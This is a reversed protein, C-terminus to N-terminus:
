RIAPMIIPRSDSTLQSRPYSHRTRCQPKRIRDGELSPLAHARPSQPSTTNPHQDSRRQQSPHRQDRRRRQNTNPPAHRARARRRPRRRRAPKGRQRNRQTTQHRARKTAALAHEPNPARTGPKHQHVTRLTKRSAKRIRTHTNGRAPPTERQAQGPNAVTRRQARKPRSRRARIPVTDRVGVPPKRLPKLIPRQPELLAKRQARRRRAHRAARHRDRQTHPPRQPRTQNTAALHDIEGRRTPPDHKAVHTQPRDVRAPM